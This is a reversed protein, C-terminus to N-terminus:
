KRQSQKWRKIINPKSALFEQVEDSSLLRLKPLDHYVTNNTVNKLVPFMVNKKMIIEQAEKSLMFEIFRDAEKCLQCKAPIGVYEVQYPHGSSFNVARYNLENSELHYALSTVYSFTLNSTKNKFLGYSSSWSPAWHSVVNQLSQSASAFSDKNQSYLWFLFIGGPSSTRPDPLSIKYDGAFLESWNNPPSVEGERYIFTLPSWNYAILFPSDSGLDIYESKNLAVQLPRWKIEKLSQAKSFQDVGVFLDVPRKDAKLKTLMILASDSSEFQIDIGTKRKFLKALPKGPGYKGSFSSYSYIKLVKSTKEQQTQFTMLLILCAVFVGAFFIVKKRTVVM